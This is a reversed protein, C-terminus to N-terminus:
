AISYEGEYIVNKETGKFLLPYVAMRMREFVHPPIILEGKSTFVHYSSIQVTCGKRNWTIMQEILSLELLNKEDVITFNGKHKPLTVISPFVLTHGDMRFEKIPITNGWGSVLVGVVYQKDPGCTEIIVLQGKRESRFISTHTSLLSRFQVSNPQFKNLVVAFYIYLTFYWCM